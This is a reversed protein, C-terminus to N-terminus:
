LSRRDIIDLTDVGGIIALSLIAAYSPALHSIQGHGGGFGGGPNQSPTLTEVVRKQYIEVSEGLLHLGSLSWFVIWPRSADYPIFRANQIATKLFDIHSERELKRIGINNYNFASRGIGALYPLCSEVVEDQSLSTNTILHDVIPPLNTHLEPVVPLNQVGRTNAIWTQDSPVAEELSNSELEGNGKFRPDTGTAMRELIAADGSGLPMPLPRSTSKRESKFVIKHKRSAVRM